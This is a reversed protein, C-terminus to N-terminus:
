ASQETKRRRAVALALVVIGALGFVLSVGPLVLGMVPNQLDRWESDLLRYVALGASTLGVLVIVAYWVANSAERKPRAPAQAAAAQGPAAQPYAAQPYEAPPLPRAALETPASAASAAASAAPATPSHAPRAEPSSGPAAAPSWRPGADSRQAPVAPAPPAAAASAAAAAPRAEAGSAPPKVLRPQDLPRDALVTAAASAEAARAAANERPVEVTAEGDPGDAEDPQAPAPRRALVTPEAAAPGSAPKPAEVTTADAGEVAAAAAAVEPRKPAEVTAKAAAEADSGANGAAGKGSKRVQVTPAAPPAAQKPVGASPASGAVAVPATDNEPPAAAAADAAADREPTKVTAASAAKRAEADSAGAKSSTASGASAASKAAKAATTKRPPKPLPTHAATTVADRLPEPLWAIGTADAGDFLEVLEAASPRADPRRALCRALVAALDEPLDALDPNTRLVKQALETSTGKGYPHVGAANCLLGALAFVDTAASVAGGTAQEPAPFVREADAGLLAPLGLDTIQPGDQTLMVTGTGLGQHVVKAQHVAVLARALATGLSRISEEPLAGHERLAADLPLGPAYETVLWNAEADAELVHALHLGDVERVASVTRRFREVFKPDSALDPRVLRVAVTGGDKAKGLFVAGLRGQVLRASLRYRGVVGPDGPKLAEM